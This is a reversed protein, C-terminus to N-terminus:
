ANVGGAGDTAALAVEVLGGGPVLMRAVSAVDPAVVRDGDLPLVDARVATHAAVVGVGPTLPRRLDLGVAACLAEIALVTRTHEVVTRGKLAATMGMSVHDERNASSPISDVSAPHALVKNESVLSAAAVQAIMMGSCLGSHSALFAPLGESLSPNVLHEVRRESIAALEAAAIALLDLAIAVPEGHFNGGSLIDGDPFVLPNDTASNIEIEIVRRVHALSDRVAGHVQPMCRLSYPDQVKHHNKGRHSERIQSGALLARLLAASAVQGPHPRAAVVRHDFADPTGLVAELSMAGVVDAALALHEADYLALLGVATLVQTGNVLALGEKPQLVVPALGALALGEAAPMRTGDREVEGEGIMALAMHALPALDGSAGVSGRSPVVPHIQGNLMGVLLDALEPRAGALGTSLVQARLLMAARVADRSLPEMVGAAHSRVLNLQLTALDQAPIAVEALAGFGTNIGYHPLGDGLRGEVVARGQRMRAVAEACLAVPADWRAVRVVDAIQLRKGVEITTM